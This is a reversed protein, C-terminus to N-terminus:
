RSREVANVIEMDMGAMHLDNVDKCDDPWDMRVLRGRWGLKRYYETAKIEEGQDPYFLVPKRVQDFDNLKMTTGWMTSCAPIRLETLTLADLIGFTVVIFKGTRFLYWDPVYLSATSRSVYRAGTSEQIHQGARLVYGTLADEDSYTPIVYWGNHWGLKQGDIRGELKRLRLYWGLSECYKSLIKHADDVFVVPDSFKGPAIGSVAEAGHDHSPPSWGRLKRDLMYLDGSRGCSLCRFWGDKYVLMSPQKDPHFVCLASYYREYEKVRDLRAIIKSLNEM